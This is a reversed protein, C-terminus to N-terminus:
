PIIYYEINGSVSTNQVKRMYHVRARNSKFLCDLQNCERLDGRAMIHTKRVKRLSFFMHM